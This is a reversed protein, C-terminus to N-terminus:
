QESEIKYNLLNCSDPLLAKTVAMVALHAYRGAQAAHRLWTQEFGINLYAAERGDFSDHRM